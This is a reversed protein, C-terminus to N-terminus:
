LSPRQKEHLYVETTDDFNTPIAPPLQEPFVVTTLV